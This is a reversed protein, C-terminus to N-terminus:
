RQQFRFRNASKLKGAQLSSDQRYLYTLSADLYPNVETESVEQYDTYQGGVRISGRLRDNFDHDAGVYFYHSYADRVDGEDPSLPSIPDDGTYSIIGFQYGILGVLSPNFQRRLDARFLHEM